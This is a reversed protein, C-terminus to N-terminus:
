LCFGYFVQRACWILDVKLFGESTCIKRKWYVNGDVKYTIEGVQMGKKIPADLKNKVVCSVEASEGSKMLIQPPEQSDVIKLPVYAQEWLRNTQANSVPIEKLWEQKLQNSDMCIQQYNNVGYEMLKKADFWKYNKNNPWGCALLAVVFTREERKVVGIYCYGANGTFGTKGTLAGDFMNLFANHNNCSFSRGGDTVSGDEAVNKNSFSYQATRTITLFEEKKPSEKICYSMIRALEEATTSHVKIEKSGDEKTFEQQADLGNPTIFYSNVCGIEKAKENMYGAFTEVSGGVQEAIAVASDNHSELMLSYLLDGLRYHEGEQMGLHVKPMRQAKKSVTVIDELNGRELAVICTMIKTTSAMPMQEKGNKEYLIRGSDADMLVASRAYLEGEKVTTENEGAKVAMSVLGTFLLIASLLILFCKKM